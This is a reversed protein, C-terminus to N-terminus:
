GHQIAEREAQAAVLVQDPYKALIDQPRAGGLYSNPSWFWYALGWGSKAEGFIMLIKAVIGLPRYGDYKNFGYGPFYDTGAFHISFIAGEAKWKSLQACLNNTCFEACDAIEPATLWDAGNIVDLRQIREPHSISNM